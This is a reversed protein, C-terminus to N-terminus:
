RACMPLASSAKGMKSFRDALQGLSLAHTSHFRHSASHTSFRGSFIMSSRRSPGSRGKRAGSDPPSSRSTLCVGLRSVMGLLHAGM